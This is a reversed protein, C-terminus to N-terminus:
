PSLMMGQLVTAAKPLAATASKCKTDLTFERYWRVNFEHLPHEGVKHIDPSRAPIRNVRDDPQCKLWGAHQKCNDDSIIHYGLPFASPDEEMKSAIDAQLLALVHAHGAATCGSAVGGGKLQMCPRWCM